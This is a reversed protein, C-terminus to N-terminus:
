FRGKGSIIDPNEKWFHAEQTPRSFYEDRNFAIIVKYGDVKPDSSLSLFVICM